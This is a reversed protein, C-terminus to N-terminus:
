FSLIALLLPSRFMIMEREILYMNFEIYYNPEYDSCSRAFLSDRSVSNPGAKNFHPVVNQHIMRWKLEDQM